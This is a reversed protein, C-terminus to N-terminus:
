MAWKPVALLIHTLAADLAYFGWHLGYAWRFGHRTRLYLWPIVLGFISAAITFRAVYPLLFGDLSLTLHFGGFLVGMMISIGWFSMRARDARLVMTAVLVQQFLIDASKPLYYWATAFMFEPPDSPARYVSVDPLLPLAVAVFLGYGILVPTLAVAHGSLAPRSLQGKFVPRFALLVIVTWILYYGAFLLPADDYGSDLAIANVLASYGWSSVSWIVVVFAVTPLLTRFADVFRARNSAEPEKVSNIMPNM